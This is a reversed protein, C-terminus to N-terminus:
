VDQFQELSYNFVYEWLKQMFPYSKKAEETMNYKRAKLDVILAGASREAMLAWFAKKEKRTKLLKKNIYFEYWKNVFDTFYTLPLTNYNHLKHTLELAHWIHFVLDYFKPMYSFFAVSFIVFDNDVKAFDQMRLHRHMFEMPWNALFNGTVKTFENIVWYEYETLPQMSEAVKLWKYFRSLVFALSYHENAQKEFFPKIKLNKFMTYFSVFYKALKGDFAPLEVTQEGKVEEMIYYFHETNKALHEYKFIYPARVHYSNEGALHTANISSNFKNILEPEPNDQHAFVLKLVADIPKDNKYYIGSYILTGIKKNLIKGTYILKNIKFNNKEAIQYALKEAQKLTIEKIDNYQSTIKNTM